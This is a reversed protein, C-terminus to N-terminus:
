ENGIKGPSALTQKKQQNLMYNQKFIEMNRQIIADLDIAADAKFVKSQTPLFTTDYRGQRNLNLLYSNITIEGTKEDKILHIKGSEPVEIPVENKWTLLGEAASVTSAKKYMGGLSKIKRSSLDAPVYITFGENILEDDAKDNDDDHAVKGKGSFQRHGWFRRDMKVHYAHYKEDGGTIGQFTISGRPILKSGKDHKSIVEDVLAQIISKGKSDSSSPVSESVGGASIIVKDPNTSSVKLLDIFSQAGTRLVTVGRQLNVEGTQTNEIVKDAKISSKSFDFDVSMTASHLMGGKNGKFKGEIDASLKRPSNPGLNTPDYGSNYHTLISNYVNEYSPDMKEDKYKFGNFTNALIKYQMDRGQIWGEQSHIAKPRPDLERIRGKEDTYFSGRMPNPMDTRQIYTPGYQPYPNEKEWQEIGKAIFAARAANLDKDYEDKTKLTGNSRFLLSAHNRGGLSTTYAGANAADVVRAAKLMDENIRRNGELMEGALFTSKIHNEILSWRTEPDLTPDEGLKLAQDMIQQRKKSDSMATSLESLSVQKNNILPLRNLKTFIQKAYQIDLEDVEKQRESIWQRNADYLKLGKDETAMNAGKSTTGYQITVEPEYIKVEPLQDVCRKSVPDWTKGKPCPGAAEAEQEPLDIFMDDFM